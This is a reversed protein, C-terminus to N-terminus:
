FSPHLCFCDLYFSFYIETSVHPKMQIRETLNRLVPETILDALIEEAAGEGSVALHEEVVAVQLHDMPAEEGVHLLGEQLAVRTSNVELEVAEEVQAGEEVM